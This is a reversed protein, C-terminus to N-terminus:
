DLVLCAGARYWEVSPLARSPLQAKARLDVALVTAGKAFDVMVDVPLNNVVSGDVLVPGDDARMPPLTGSIAISSWVSRWVSGRIHARAVGDTLDTSVCFMPYWLDEIQSDQYVYCLGTGIAEGKSLAVAPPTFDVLSGRNVTVHKANEISTATDWGLGVGAAAFAGISTGGVCDIPINRERM